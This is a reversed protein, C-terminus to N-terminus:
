GLVRDTATATATAMSMAMASRLVARRRRGHAGAHVLRPAPKPRATSPEHPGHDTLGSSRPSSSRHARRTVTDERHLAQDTPRRRNGVTPDATTRLIPT